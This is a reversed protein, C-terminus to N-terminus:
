FLSQRIAEFLREYISEVKAAQDPGQRHLQAFGPAANVELITASQTPEWGATDVIMDVAYYRLGLASGADVAIRSLTADVPSDKFHGTGGSSLNATPLLDIKTASPPIDDLSYRQHKLTALLQANDARVIASRRILNAITQHGDAVIHPPKREIVGLIEGDLVVFRLDKGPIAQQVLLREHKPFLASLTAKLEAEDQLRYVDKGEQGDNPKLFVPYGVERAFILADDTSKLAKGYGPRKTTVTDILGPSAILLSAPTPLGERVLFEITYAKDRALDASGQPNLSFRTGVFFSRKGTDAEVFGAHGLTEDLHLHLGNRQCYDALLRQVLPGRAGRLSTEAM